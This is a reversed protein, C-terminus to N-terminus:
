VKQIVLSMIWHLRGQDHQGSKQLQNELEDFFRQPTGYEYKGTTNDTFSM